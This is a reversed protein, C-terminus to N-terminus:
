PLPAVQWAGNELNAGPIQNWPLLREWVAGKEYPAKSWAVQLDPRVGDAFALTSPRRPIRMKMPDWTGVVCWYKDSGLIQLLLDRHLRRLARAWLWNEVGAPSFSVLLKPGTLRNGDRGIPQPAFLLFAVNKGDQATAARHSIQFNGELLGLSHRLEQIPWALVIQGRTCWKLFCQRVTSFVIGERHTYTRHIRKRAEREDDLPVRTTIVILDSESLKLDETTADDDVAAAEVTVAQAAADTPRPIDKPLNLITEGLTWRSEIFTEYLEVFASADRILHLQRDWLIEEESPSPGAVYRIYHPTVPYTFQFVRPRAQEGTAGAQEPIALPRQQKPM